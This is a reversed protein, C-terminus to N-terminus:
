ENIILFDYPKVILSPILVILFWLVTYLTIGVIIIKLSHIGTYRTFSQYLGCLYFIPIAIIPMLFIVIASQNTEPLFWDNIRISLSSYFSLVLLLYDATMLLLTKKWRSQSLLFETFYSIIGKM